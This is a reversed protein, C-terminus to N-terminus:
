EARFNNAVGQGNTGIAKDPIDNLFYDAVHQHKNWAADMIAPYSAMPNSYVEAGNKVLLKVINRRDRAAAM